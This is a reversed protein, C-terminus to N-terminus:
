KSNGVGSYRIYKPIYEPHSPQVRFLHDEIAGNLFTAIRYLVDKCCKGGKYHYFLMGEWREGGKREIRM